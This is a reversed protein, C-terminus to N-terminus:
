SRAAEQISFTARKTSYIIEYAAVEDFSTDLLWPNNALLNKFAENENEGVEIGIVQINEIDPKSSESKPQYTNGETSLFIFERM